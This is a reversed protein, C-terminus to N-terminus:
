PPGLRDLHYRIAALTEGPDRVGLLLDGGLGDIMALLAVAELAPDLEPRLEGDRRGQEILEMVREHLWRDGQRLEEILEPADIARATLARSARREARRQDDLPLMETAMSMLISRVRSTGPAECMGSLIRETVRKGLHRVVYLVMEDKSRFYHQVSGLSIGAEAAVDRLRARDLGEPSALRLVAEAIHRRREDHDVQKPM